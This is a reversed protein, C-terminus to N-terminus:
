DRATKNEEKNKKQCWLMRLSAASAWLNYTYISTLIRENKKEEKWLSCFM